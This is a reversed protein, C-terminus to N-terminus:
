KRALSRDGLGRNYFARGPSVESTGKAESVADPRGLVFQQVIPPHSRTAIEEARDRGRRTMQVFERSLPVDVGHSPALFTPKFALGPRGDAGMTPGGKGLM